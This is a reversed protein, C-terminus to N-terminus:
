HTKGQALVQPATDAVQTIVTPITNNARMLQMLTEEGPMGDVNLGAQAQFERTRQVLTQTWSQAHTEPEHLAQSLQTDIWALDQRSSAAGVLDQGAPTLRHLLTYNGTAHANFWSRKVQWTRNNLLLDLSNQGVRAVVAYNLHDGTKLESVWPYGEKELEQLSAHGQKCTLNVRAANQCLAEETSPDYGWMTYLQHMADPSNVVEKDLTPLVPAQPTHVTQKWSPPVPLPVPLKATIAGSFYWGCAAFLVSAFLGVTALTKRHTKRPLVEGAALRLHRPGVGPARETWAALLSLHALANLQSVSGKSLAHMRRIRAPTFPLTEAGHEQTQAQVYSMVERCTLPRLTHRTHVRSALGSHNMLRAEQDPTGTLVLTLSLNCEQARSLLMGLAEWCNDRMAQVASVTMVMGSKKCAPYKEHWQRLVADIAHIKNSADKAQASLKYLLGKANLKPFANVAVGASTKALLHGTFTNLLAEDDGFLAVIGPMTSKEALMGFVDQHYAAFFSGCPRAASRFPPRAFKFHSLFM